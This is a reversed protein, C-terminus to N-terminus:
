QKGVEFEEILNLIDFIKEFLQNEQEPIQNGIVNQLKNLDTRVQDVQDILSEDVAVFFDSSTREKYDSVYLITSLQAPM